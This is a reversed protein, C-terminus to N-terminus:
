EKSLPRWVVKSGERYSAALGADGLERLARQSKREKTGFFSMVQKTTISGGEKMKEFVLMAFDSPFVRFSDDPAKGSYLQSGPRYFIIRTFGKEQRYEFKVYVADCSRKIRPIGSGYQGIIGARFLLNAILPNRPDSAAGVKGEIHNEPSDGESFLGPNVMEVTDPFINLGVAFGVTYDRHCLANAIAERTAERPIEPIEERAADGKIVLRRRVNSFVYREALDILGLAPGDEHKLDLIDVKSESALVGM